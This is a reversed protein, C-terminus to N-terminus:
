RVGAWGGARGGAKSKKCGRGGKASDGCLGASGRWLESKRGGWSVSFICAIGYGKM